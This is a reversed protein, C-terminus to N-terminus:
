SRKTEVPHSQIYFQCLLFVNEDDNEETMCSSIQFSQMSRFIYCEVKATNLCRTEADKIDGAACVRLGM